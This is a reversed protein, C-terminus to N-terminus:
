ADIVYVRVHEGLNPEFNTIYRHEVSRVLYKRNDIALISDKQPISGELEVIFLDCDDYDTIDTQEQSLVFM